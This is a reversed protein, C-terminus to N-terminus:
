RGSPVPAEVSTAAEDALAALEADIRAMLAARSAVTFRDTFAVERKASRLMTAYDDPDDSDACLIVASRRPPTEDFVIEGVFSRTPCNRARAIAPPEVPPAPTALPAEIDPLPALPDIEQAADQVSLTMAAIIVFM